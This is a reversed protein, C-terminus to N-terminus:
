IIARKEQGEIRNKRIIIVRLLLINVEESERSKRGRVRVREGQLPFSHFFEFV